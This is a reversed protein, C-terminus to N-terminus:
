AVTKQREPPRCQFLSVQPIILRLNFIEHTGQQNVIKRLLEQLPELKIFRCRQGKLPKGIRFIRKHVEFHPKPIMQFSISIFLTMIKGVWALLKIIQTKSFKRQVM